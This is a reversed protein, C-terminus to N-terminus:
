QKINKFVFRVLLFNVPIAIAYVPIPALSSKIGLTLVIHLLIMQLLWNCFHALGFGAGRRVSAPMKFTFLATLIFNAVFSVAYGITYAVGAAMMQQLLYYILYHIGTAVVGVVCFRVAEGVTSRNLLIKM